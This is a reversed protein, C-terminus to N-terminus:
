RHREQGDPCSPIPIWYQWTPPPDGYEEGAHDKWVILFTHWALVRPGPWAPVWAVILPAQQSDPEQVHRDIWQLPSAQPRPAAMARSLTIHIPFQEDVFITYSNCREAV